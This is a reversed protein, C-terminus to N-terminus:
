VREAGTLFGHQLSFVLWRKPIPILYYDFLRACWWPRCSFWLIKLCFHVLVTKRLDQHLIQYILEFKFWWFIVILSKFQQSSKLPWIALVKPPFKRQCQDRPVHAASANMIQMNLLVTKGRKWIWLIDRLYWSLPLRTVM